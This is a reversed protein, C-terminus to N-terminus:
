SVKRVPRRNLRRGLTLLDLYDIDFGEPEGYLRVNIHRPHLEVIVPETREFTETRRVVPRAKSIRTVRM